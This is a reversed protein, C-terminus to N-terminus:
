EMSLDRVSKRAAVAAETANVAQEVAGRVASFRCSM